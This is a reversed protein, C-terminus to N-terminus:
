LKVLGCYVAIPVIAFGLSTVTAFGVAFHERYQNYRPHSLGLTQMFSWAGHYLHLGLFTQAVLYIAVIWEEQFSVVVNKYVSESFGGPITAGFTLHAIHYVIYGLIALGGWFMSRSAPTSKSTAVKAYRDPRAQTNLKRLAIASWVHAGIAGLLVARAIWLGAGGLLTRLSKAYADMAEAGQFVLLNGAMHSFVFGLLVMGSLAMVVKKGLATDYLGLTRATM